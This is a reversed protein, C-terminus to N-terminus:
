LAEYWTFNDELCWCLSTALVCHNDECFVAVEVEVKCVVDLDVVDECSESCFLFKNRVCLFRKLATKTHVRSCNFEQTITVGAFLWNKIQLFLHRSNFFQNGGALLLLENLEFIDFGTLNETERNHRKFFGQVVLAVITLTEVHNNGALRFLGTTDSRDRAVPLRDDFAIVVAFDDNVRGLEDDLFGREDSTWLGAPPPM